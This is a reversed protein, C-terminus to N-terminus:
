WLTHWALDTETMWPRIRYIYIYIYTYIQWGVTSSSIDLLKAAWLDATDWNYPITPQKFRWNWGLWIEQFGRGEALFLCGLIPGMQRLQQSRFTITADNRSFLSCYPYVMTCYMYLFINMYIYIYTYIYIYMYLISFQSTTEESIEIKLDDQAQPHNKKKRRQEQRLQSLRQYGAHVRPHFGGLRFCNSVMPSDTTVLQSPRQSLLGKPFFFCMSRLRTRTYGSTIWCISFPGNRTSLHHNEM